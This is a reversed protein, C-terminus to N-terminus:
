FKETDFKENVGKVDFEYVDVEKLPPRRAQQSKPNDEPNPVSVPLDPTLLQSM